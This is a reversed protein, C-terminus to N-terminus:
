FDEGVVMDVEQIEKIMGRPIALSSNWAEGTGPKHQRDFTGCIVIYDTADVVLWGVSVVPSPKPLDAESSWGAQTNADHWKVAVIRAETDTM